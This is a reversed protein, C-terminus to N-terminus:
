FDYNTEFCTTICGSISNCALWLATLPFKPENQFFHESLFEYFHASRKYGVLASLNKNLIGYIFLVCVSSPKKKDYPFRKNTWVRLRILAFATLLAATWSQLYFLMIYYLVLYYASHTHTAHPSVLPLLCVCQTSKQSIHGHRHM